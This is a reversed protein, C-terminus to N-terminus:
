NNYLYQIHYIVIKLCNGVLNDHREFAIDFGFVMYMFILESIIIKNIM